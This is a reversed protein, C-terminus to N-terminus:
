KYLYVTFDHPLYDHRLILNKTLSSCLSLVKEPRAYFEGETKRDAWDSLSSFAVCESATEFLKTVIQMMPDYAEPGMLYFIGNAVVVDFKRELPQTLIDRHEFQSGPYKSTAREVMARTIDIGLYEVGVFREALYESFDGFGCGVDLISKNEMGTVSSIVSFRQQQSEKSGYDMAQMSGGHEAILGTFFSEINEKTTNWTM